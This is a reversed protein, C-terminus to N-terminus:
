KAPPTLYEDPVTIPGANLVYLVRAEFNGRMPKGDVYCQGEYTGQFYQWVGVSEEADSLTFLYEGAALPEELFIRLNANDAFDVFRKSVLPEVQVTTDYDSQWTYISLTLSGYNNSFSPCAVTFIDWDNEAVFRQSAVQGPKIVMPTHDEYPIPAYLSLVYDEACATSFLLLTICILLIGKKLM